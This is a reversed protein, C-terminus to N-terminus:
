QREMLFFRNVHCSAASGNGMLKNMDDQVALKRNECRRQGHGDGIHSSVNQVDSYGMVDDYPRPDTEAFRWVHGTLEIVFSHRHEAM